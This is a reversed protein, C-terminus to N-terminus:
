RGVEELAALVAELERQRPGRRFLAGAPTPEERLALNLEPGLVEAAREPERSLSIGLLLLRDAAIERLLPVVQLQYQSRHVRGARLADQLTELQPPLQPGLRAGASPLLKRPPAVRRFELILGGIVLAGVSLLYVRGVQSADVGGRALVVGVAVTGLAIVFLAPSYRELLGVRPSDAM